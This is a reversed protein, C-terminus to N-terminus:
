PTRAAEGHGALEVTRAGGLAADAEAIAEPTGVHM